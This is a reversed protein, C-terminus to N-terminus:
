TTKLTLMLIDDTLEASGRHAEIADRMKSLVREPKEGALTNLRTMLRKQGYPTGSADTTEYLGDNYLFLTFDDILTIHQEVYEYADMVGIPINPTVDLPKAGTSEYLIVPAPNGANCYTLRATELDLVGVFLTAFMQNYNISCMSHNMSTVIAAPSPNSSAITQAGAATRFVTRTVSMLLAAKVNSGPVDGICFVVKSGFYFYDYFDASINPASILTHKVELHHLADDKQTNHPMMANQIDSAIQLEKGLLEQEMILHNMARFKTAYRWVIWTVLLLAVLQLLIGVISVKDFQEYITDDNQALEKFHVDATLIGIVRGHSDHIPQGYTRILLGSGGVDTYPESWMASDAAYPKAYWDQETYDYPLLKTLPQGKADPGSPYAFPAFLSDAEQYFGPQMAVASGVIYENRAVLRSVIGYFANPTQMSVLVDGMANQVATEVTTKLNVIRQMEQLSRYTREVSQQKTKKRTYIYEAINFVQALIAATVILAISTTANRLTKRINTNM